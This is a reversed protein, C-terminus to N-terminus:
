EYGVGVFKVSRVTALSNATTNPYTISRLRLARCGVLGDTILDIDKGGWVSTAGNPTVTVAIPTTTTDENEGDWVPSFLLTMATSTAGATGTVNVVIRGVPAGRWGAGAAAANTALTIINQPIPITNLLNVRNGPGALRAAQNPLKYGTRVHNTSDGLYSQAFSLNTIGVTNTVTVYDANVFSYARWKQQASAVVAFAMLAVFCVLFKKM